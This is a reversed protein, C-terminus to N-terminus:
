KRKGPAAAVPVPEVTVDFTTVVQVPEGSVRMPKFTWNLLAGTAIRTTRDTGSEASEAKWVHGDMGIVVSVSIKVPKTLEESQITKAHDVLAKAEDKPKMEVEPFKPVIKHTVKLAQDRYFQALYPVKAPMPFDLGACNILLEEAVRDYDPEAIGNGLLGMSILHVAWGVHAGLVSDNLAEEKVQRAFLSKTEALDLRTPQEFPTMAAVGAIAEAYLTALTRAYETSETDYNAATKLWNAAMERDTLRLARAANLLVHANNPQRAAQQLWSSRVRAYGAKDDPDVLLGRNDHVSGAVDIDARNAIMWELFHIRAEHLKEDTWRGLYFDLIDGALKDNRPDAQLAREFAQASALDRIDKPLQQAVCLAPTATAIFAFILVRRM